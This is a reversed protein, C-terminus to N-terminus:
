HATRDYYRVTLRGDEIKYTEISPLITVGGDARLHNAVYAAGELGNAIVQLAETSCLGGCQRWMEEM